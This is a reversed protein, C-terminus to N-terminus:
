RNLNPKFGIMALSPFPSREAIPVAVVNKFGATRMWARYDGATYAAGKGTFVLLHVNLLASFKPGTRDPGIVYDHIVLRGGPRLARWAKAVLARNVKEDEVRTVNSILVLDFEERGLEDTLYNAARFRFRRAAPHSRVLGRTVPLAGPLDLLTATLKPEREVLAASFNGAGSGVDLSDRVCSLDLKRALEAAPHRTIDGMAKLYDGTFFDKGIWDRLGLRPKGTRMVERLDSWADWTYEQYKLNHGVYDPSGEVLMRRGARTNAYRGGSKRLWGLAVLADLVRSLAPEDLKRRRALRAPDGYGKEIWTFLDYHLAALLPKASRYSMALDTIRSLDAYYATSM